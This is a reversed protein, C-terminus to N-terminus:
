LTERWHSNECSDQSTKQSFAKGCQNCKYPKEGTHTRVHRRRTSSDNSSKGVNKVNMNNKAWTVKRTCFLIVFNESPKGVNIVNIVNREM